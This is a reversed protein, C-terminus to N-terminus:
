ARRLALRSLLGAVTAWLFFSGVILQDDARKKSPVIMTRSGWLVCRGGM